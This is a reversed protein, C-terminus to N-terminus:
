RFFTIVLFLFYKKILRTKLANYAKSVVIDNEDAFISTKICMM